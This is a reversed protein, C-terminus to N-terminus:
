RRTATFAAAPVSGGADPPCTSVTAIDGHMGYMATPSVFNGTVAGASGGLAIGFRDDDGIVATQLSLVQRTCAQRVTSPLRFSSVVGNQVVFEIASGNTSLGSWIGDFESPVGIDLRGQRGSISAFVAAVGPALITLEGNATLTAVQDGSQILLTWAPATGELPAGDADLPIATLQVTTGVELTSVAPTIAVRAPVVLVTAEATLGDRTASVTVPGGLSVGRVQGQQDISAVGANSTGWTIGDTRQETAGNELEVFASLPVAVGVGVTLSTESLVLRTVTSGTAGDSTCGAAGPAAILLLLRAARMRLFQTIM